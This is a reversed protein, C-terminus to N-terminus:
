WVDYPDFLEGDYYIRIYPEGTVWTGEGSKDLFAYCCQQKGTTNKGYLRYVYRGNKSQSDYKTQPIEIDLPIAPSQLPGNLSYNYPYDGYQAYYLLGAQRITGLISIAETWKTREVMKNYQPIAMTALIGIIIIVILLEVLTFGSLRKM